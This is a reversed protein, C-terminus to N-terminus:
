EPESVDVAGPGATLRGSYIFVYGMFLTPQMNEHALGGGTSATTFTHSHSGDIAISHTHDGVADIVLAQTYTTNIENGENDISGPTGNGDKTVLGPTGDANSTHTHAGASGTAGGHDHSGSTETTGTHTHAPMEAVTLTHTETGVSAGLARDTLGPGLGAMAAVRGRLDPLRFTESTPAGFATGLVEYLQRYAARDLARGDCKLWGQYDDAHATWKFEGVHFAMHQVLTAARRLERHLAAANPTRTSPLAAM